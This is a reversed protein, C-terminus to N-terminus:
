PAANSLGSRTDGADDTVALGFGPRQGRAPVGVLEEVRDAVARHQGDQVEVAVLDGIRGHQGADRSTSSSDQQAAVAIPRDGNGSVIRGVDVLLKRGSEVVGQVDDRGDLAVGAARDWRRGAHGIITSRVGFPHVAGLADVAVLDLAGAAGM